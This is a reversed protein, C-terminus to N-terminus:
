LCKTGSVRCLRQEPAQETDVRGLDLWSTRLERAVPFIGLVDRVSNVFGFDLIASPTLGQVMKINHNRGSTNWGDGLVFLKSESTVSFSEDFPLIGPLEAFTYALESGYMGKDNVSFGGFDLLSVLGGIDGTLGPTDSETVRATVVRDQDDGETKTANLLSVRGSETTQYTALMPNINDAVTWTKTLLSDDSSLSEENNSFFRWHIEQELEENSKTAANSTDSPANQFWVTREWAMYRAAQDTAQTTEVFKGLLPLLIVVVVLVSGMAIVAEVIAQGKNRLIM